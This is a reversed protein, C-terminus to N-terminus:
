STSTWMDSTLAVRGDLSDLLKLTTARENEYIKMIEKKITNRTPVQFVPQLAASYRRFGLRDGISLPYEHMIIAKALQERADYTGAGLEQKGQVVKPTLFAQGKMGRMFIKYQVCIENHQWLHKTGNKSKGGLLKKCYKCETKDLGNVKIKKFHQWIKSKLRCIGGQAEVNNVEDEHPSPTHDVNIPSPSPALDVQIPSRTQDM